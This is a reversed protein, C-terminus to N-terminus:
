EREGWNNRNSLLAWGKGDLVMFGQSWVPNSASNYQSYEMTEESMLGGLDVVNKGAPSTGVAVNHQHGTAINYATHRNALKIGVALPTRSYEKPHCVFWDNVICHTQPVICINKGRIERLLMPLTIRGETARSLWGADHNGMLITTSKAYKDWYQIMRVMTNYESEFPVNGDHFPSFAENNIIDGAHFLDAGDVHDMLKGFAYWDVSPIHMDSAFVAHKTTFEKPAFNFNNPAMDICEQKLASYDHPLTPLRLQRAQTVLDHIPKGIKQSIVEYQEAGLGRKAADKLIAAFSVSERETWIAEM